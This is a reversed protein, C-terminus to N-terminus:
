GGPMSSMSIVVLHKLYGSDQLILKWWNESKAQQSEGSAALSTLGMEITQTLSRMGIVPSANLQSAAKDIAKWMPQAMEGLRFGRAYLQSVYAATICTNSDPPFRMATPDDFQRLIDALEEECSVGELSLPNELFRGIVDKRRLRILEDRQELLEPQGVLIVTPSVGYKELHNTLDILYSYEHPKIRQAEDLIILVRPDHTEACRVLLHRIMATRIDDGDGLVPIDLHMDTALGKFFRTDSRTKRDVMVANVCVVSPYKRRIESLVYRITRSKGIRSPGYIAIGTAMREVELCVLDLVDKMMPTVVEYDRKSTPFRGAPVQLDHLGDM